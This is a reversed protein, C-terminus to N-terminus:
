SELIAHVQALLDANAFPKTIYANAGLALGKGREVSRAKSTLFIIKMNKCAPDKRFCQCLDFGSRKDLDIGLLVLDPPDESVASAGAEGDELARVGYGQRKLLYSLSLRLNAEREVIFISKSM